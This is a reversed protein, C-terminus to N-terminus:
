NISLVQAFISCFSFFFPILSALFNRAFNIFQEVLDFGGGCRKRHRVALCDRNQQVLLVCFIKVKSEELVSQNWRLLWCLWPKPIRQINLLIGYCSFAPFLISYLVFLKCTGWHSISCYSSSCKCQVSIYLSALFFFVIIHLCFFSSNM